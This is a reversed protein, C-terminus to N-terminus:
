TPRPAVGFLAFLGEQGKNQSVPHTGPPEPSCLFWRHFNHRALLSRASLLWGAALRGRSVEPAWLSSPRSPLAFNCTGMEQRINGCIGPNYRALSLIVLPRMLCSMSAPACGCLSITPRSDSWFHGDVLSLPDGGDIPDVAILVQAAGHQRPAPPEFQWRHVCVFRRALIAIAVVPAVDIPAHIAHAPTSDILKAAELNCQLSRRAVGRYWLRVRTRM